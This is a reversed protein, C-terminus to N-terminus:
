SPLPAAVDKPLIEFAVFVTKMEKAITDAWFTTGTEKNSELVREVTKPLQVGFKSHTHFLVGEHCVYDPEEEEACSTGVM